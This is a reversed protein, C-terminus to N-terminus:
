PGGLLATAPAAEAGEEEKDAEEEEEEEEVGAVCRGASEAADVL